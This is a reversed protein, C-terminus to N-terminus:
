SIKRQRQSHYSKLVFRYLKYWFMNQSVSLTLVVDIDFSLVLAIHICYLVTQWTVDHRVKNENVKNEHRLYHKVKYMNNLVRMQCLRLRHSTIHHFIRLRHSTIHHSIIHIIHYSSVSFFITHLFQLITKTKPNNSIKFHFIGKTPYLRPAPYRYDEIRFKQEFPSPIQLRLRWYLHGTCRLIGSPSM